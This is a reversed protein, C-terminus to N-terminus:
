LSEIEIIPFIGSGSFMSLGCFDRNSNPTNLFIHAYGCRTHVFVVPTRWEDLVGGCSIILEWHLTRHM